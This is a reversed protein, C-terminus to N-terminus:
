CCNAAATQCTTTGNEFHNLCKENRWITGSRSQPGVLRRNLPYQGIKLSYLLLTTFGCVEMSQRPQSHTSTRRWQGMGSWPTWLCLKVSLQSLCQSVVLIAIYVTKRRSAPPPPSNHHGPTINYSGHETSLIHFIESGTLDSKMTLIIRASAANNDNDWSM